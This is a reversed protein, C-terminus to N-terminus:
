GVSANFVSSAAVAVAASSTEAFSSAADSLGDSSAPELLLGGRDVSGCPGTEKGVASSAEETRPETRPDM